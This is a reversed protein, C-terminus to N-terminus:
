GVPLRFSVTTGKGPTSTADITGGHAEVIRRAIALGL